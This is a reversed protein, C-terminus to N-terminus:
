EHGGESWRTYTPSIQIMNVAATVTDSGSGGDRAISIWLLDPLGTSRRPIVGSVDIEVETSVQQDVAGIAVTKSLHLESNISAPGGSTEITDGDRTIGFNIFWVVNGTGKGAFSLRLVLPASTDMDYPAYLCLGARDIVGNAFSNELRGAALDEQAGGASNLAYFDANGPSNSTAQFNNWDWAITNIPRAKGFYELWGDSNIEFRSTHLKFQEFIPATTIGTKIAYRVWFYSAGLTMPDNKAWNSSINPNFRIQESGTREFIAKASPYYDGSSETSMHNFETWASGNWYEAVIEGAGLVAATSILAKIGYHELFDGNRLSSAVYVRNDAAVGPFTFASASASRAEASVDVFVNGATETYVLMGRTYSDGQGLVAESGREPRGVGFEGFVRLGEDAEKYDIFSIIEGSYGTPFVFKDSDLKGSPVHCVVTSDVIEIHTTVPDYVSLGDVSFISTGELKIATTGQEIQFNGGTVIASGIAHICTVINPGDLHAGGIHLEASDCYAYDTFTANGLVTFSHASVKGSGTARFMNTMVSDRVTGIGNASILGNSAHLGYKCDVIQCDNVAIATTASNNLVAANDTVGSLVLGQVMMPGIGTGTFLAVNIDNAVIKTSFRTGIPVLDVYPRLDIPDENYVGPYVLVAWRNTSSPNVVSDYAAKISTYNGGSKAVVVVGGYASLTGPTSNYRAQLLDTTVLTLSDPDLWTLVPGVATYDVGEQRLQGNLYLSFAEPSNPTDSLTFVTQGLTPTFEDEEPAPPPEAVNPFTLGM